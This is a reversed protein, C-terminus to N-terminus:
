LFFCVGHHTASWNTAPRVCPTVCPVFRSQSRNPDPAPEPTHLVSRHKRIHLAFSKPTLCNTTLKSPM